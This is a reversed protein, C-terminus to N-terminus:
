LYWEDEKYHCNGLRRGYEVYKKYKYYRKEKNTGENEIKVLEKIVPVNSTNKLENYTKEDIEVEEGYDM